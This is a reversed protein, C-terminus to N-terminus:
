PPSPMAPLRGTPARLRQQCNLPMAGGPSCAQWAAFTARRRGPGAGWRRLGLRVFLWRCTQQAILKPIMPQHLATPRTLQAFTSNAPQDNTSKTVATSRHDGSTRTRPQCGSAPEIWFPWQPAYRHRAALGGVVTLHCHDDRTGHEPATSGGM